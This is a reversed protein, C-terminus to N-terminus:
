HGTPKQIIAFKIFSLWPVYSFRWYFNPVKKMVIIEVAIVYWFRDEFLLWWISNSNEGSVFQVVVTGLDAKKTIIKPALISNEAVKQQESVSTENYPRFYRQWLYSYRTSHSIIRYYEQRQNSLRSFFPYMRSQQLPFYHFFLM